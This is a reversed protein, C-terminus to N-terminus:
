TSDVSISWTCCATNVLKRGPSVHDTILWKLNTEVIFAASSPQVCERTNPFLLSLNSVPNSFPWCMSGDGRYSWALSCFAASAPICSLPHRQAVCGFTELGLPVLVPQPPLCPAPSCWPPELSWTTGHPAGSACAVRACPQCRPLSCSPLTPLQLSGLQCGPCGGAGRLKGGLPHAQWLYMPGINLHRCFTFSYVVGPFAARWGGVGCWRSSRKSLFLFIFSVRKDTVQIPIKLFLWHPM